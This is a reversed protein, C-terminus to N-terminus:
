PRPSLRYFGIRYVGNGPQAYRLSSYGRTHLDEVLLPEATYRQHVALCPPTMPDPTPEDHFAFYCFMGQYFLLEGKAEPWAVTGAAARRVDVMTYRMGSGTLLFGPFADLNRGGTDAATLLTGEAPLKPVNRELFAWELQQDMLEGVFGRWGVVVGAVSAVLLAVGILAGSRRHRRWAAMWAPVAGGALLVLYSMPLNQARLHFPPNDFVSLSFATFGLYVAAIWLLWGPRRVAAWAAGAVIMVPYVIPTVGPDLLLLTEYYRRLSFAHPSPPRGERFVHMVDLAHPVLLVALVVGALVTPWAFLLRPGRPLVLLFFGVVVAPFFIMEPRTQVALSAVLAALLVDV